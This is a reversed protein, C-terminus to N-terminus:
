DGGGVIPLYARRSSAESVARVERQLAPNTRSTLTVTVVDTVGVAANVPVTVTWALSTSAAPTLTIADTALLTPWAHPGLAIDYTDTLTGTNTVGATYVITQGSAAQGPIADPTMEVDLTGDIIQLFRASPAGWVGDADQGEVFILHQGPTWGSTDITAQVEEVTEDFAGDVAAMAHTVTGTIWSPADISYRAASIVQTPEDGFGNSAYRGDDVTATLTIIASPSTVPASLSVDLAEPGAPTQYPRRAAKVAYLLADLNEPLITEEFYPCSQFFTTGIEFTYAAVGLDGYVWDDSTGDTQYICNPEGSQCVTYGTYYGFKRGLTRLQTRNPPADPTWGWPYLVLKGYSHLTIFLGTADDPAAADDASGRQDPFLTLGYDQLAQVEPESAPGSGRFTESCANSSSCNFGNCQNWKFSSNRNLDVGYYFSPVADTFCGDGDNTNKRWYLLQEAFKRGDPNALPLIHIENYDLLWTVEPDQGYNDVLYEGFRAAFETTALERAHIAAILFLVGKPAPSNRNTVVLTKLDYGPPGGPTIREWSDGMDVWQALDPHADALAALDADTEEVTRYCAYGPIGEDVAAPLAPNSAARMAQTRAPDPTVAVGQAELEQQQAPWILALLYGSGHNVEWVDLTAALQQLEAQSSFHIRALYPEGAPADQGQAVPTLGAFLLGTLLLALAGALLAHLPKYRPEFKRITTTAKQFPPRHVHRPTGFEGARAFRREDAM